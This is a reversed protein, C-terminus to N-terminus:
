LGWTHEPVLLLRTSFRDFAAAHGPSVGQSQWKERLRCLHRYAITTHPDCGVGHIWTDGLEQAVLPLAASYVAVDQAFDDLRGPRIQAHPFREQLERYLAQVAEVTHPGHNDNTMAVFLATEAGPWHAVDGYAGKSCAVVVESDSAEDRWRFLPPTEPAPSAPNVGIHLFRVGAEALLPVIARTHGPVDTMKAAITTRGFRKDLRRSLSLGHRFHEAGTLESHLTFPLAHWAVDGAAIAEEMERRAQASARELYTHILWAGTTWVMGTAPSEERLRRALAIAAPIFHQVYREVVREAFDTYGVDLHTKFVVHVKKVDAAHCFAPFLTGSLAGAATARLFDRRNM